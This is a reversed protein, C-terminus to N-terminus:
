TSARKRYKAQIWCRSMTIGKLRNVLLRNDNKLEIQDLCGTSEFIDNLSEPTFFFSTTGDSRVYYNESLYSKGKFRLQTLDFRAYDRVLFLGNPKLLKSLNSITAKMLEPKMASLTFVLMIYDLSESDIAFKQEGDFARCVDAQFATIQDSNQHYFERTKLTKIANDALDCCFIHLNANNNSGVIHAVANGVGCGVELICCPKSDDQLHQLMEPFESFIWKRDKFFKDEHTQYFSNWNHQVGQEISSIRDPQQSAQAERKQEDIRREAELRMGATWETDDWANQSFVNDQDGLKRGRKTISIMRILRKQADCYLLLLHKDALCLRVRANAVKAGVSVCVCLCNPSSDLVLLLQM